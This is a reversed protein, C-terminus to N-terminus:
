KLNNSRVFQLLADPVGFESEVLGSLERLLVNSRNFEELISRIKRKNSATKKKAYACFAAELHSIADDIEM